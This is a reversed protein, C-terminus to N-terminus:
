VLYCIKSEQSELKRKSELPLCSCPELLLIRIADLRFIAKPLNLVLRIEFSPKGITDAKLSDNTNIGESAHCNSKKCIMM